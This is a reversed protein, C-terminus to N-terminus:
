FPVEELEKMAPLEDLRKPEYRVTKLPPEYNRLKEQQKETLPGVEPLGLEIRKITTPFLKYIDDDIPAYKRRIRDLECEFCRCYKEQTDDYKVQWFMTNCVRCYALSTAAIKIGFNRVIYRDFDCRSGSSSNVIHIVKGYHIYECFLEDEGLALKINSHGNPCTLEQIGVPLGNAIYATTM